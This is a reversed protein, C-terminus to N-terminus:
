QEQWNNIIVLTSSLSVDTVIQKTYDNITSSVTLIRDNDVGTVTIICSGDAFNLSTGSFSNDRRLRELGEEMCGDARTLNQAGKQSTYGIDLEGMGLTAASFAMILAAVAIVVVTFLASAGQQNIKFIIKM